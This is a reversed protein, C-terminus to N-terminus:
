VAVRPARRRAPRAAGRAKTKMRVARASGGATPGKSHPAAAIWRRFREADEKAEAQLWATFAKAADEPAADAVELYFAGLTAVGKDGLPTVLRGDHLHDILHPWKGVAVGSGKVAAEIVQDYHSFRLWGAPELRGLNMAASWQQWDYWPRGYLVTEFDLLVHRALDSQTRLPRAPDRALAPSCAPFQHYDFIKPGSPRPAHSLAFRIAVDIHERKLDIADNTSVVRLDIEPHRQAFRPLRPVLWTSALAVTTTVALTRSPGIARQTAADIQALAEDVTRYLEEGTQTLQLARNVRRFLPKGIQEELTRIEHSIASQTVFLERAAQTFSLHRAAVCFRRLLDLSIRSARRRDM